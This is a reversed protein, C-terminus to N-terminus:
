ATRILVWAVAVALGAVLVISGTLVARQIAAGRPDPMAVPPQDSPPEPPLALQAARDTDSPTEAPRDASQAVPRPSAAPWEFTLRSEGLTVVCGDALALPGAGPLIPQGDVWSRPRCDSSGTPRIDRISYCGGDRRIAVHQRSVTPHAVVINNELGRGITVEAGDITPLVFADAALPSHDGGSCVVLRPPKSEAVPGLSVSVSDAPGLRVGWGAVPAWGTESLRRGMAPGDAIRFPEGAPAGARIVQIRGNTVALIAGVLAEDAGDLLLLPVRDRPDEDLRLEIARSPM